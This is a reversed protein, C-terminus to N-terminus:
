YLVTSILRSGWKYVLSHFAITLLVITLLTVAITKLVVLCAARQALAHVALVCLVVVLQPVLDLLLLELCTHLLTAIALVGLAELLVTLAVLFAPDAIWVLALTLVALIVVESLQFLKLCGLDKSISM